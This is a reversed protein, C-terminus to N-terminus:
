SSHNRSEMTVYWANSTTRRLSSLFSRQEENRHHDDNNMSHSSLFSPSSLSSERPVNGLHESAVSDKADDVDFSAPLKVSPICSLSFLTRGVQIATPAGDASLPVEGGRVAVLTGFKSMLDQIWVHGNEYRLSAHKRSISVDTIRVQSEHGRGLVVPSSDALSIIHLGSPTLPSTSSMSSSDANEENSALSELVVLPARLQPVEVLSTVTECGPLKIYTPYLQKCLECSLQKYFFHCSSPIDTEDPLELRGNIWRRLCSLHVYRISGSCSCPAIMPDDDEAGEMLCIKCVLKKADESGGGVAPVVALSSKASSLEIEDQSVTRSPRRSVVSESGRSLARSSRRFSHSSQRKRQRYTEALDLSPWADEEGEDETGMCTEASESRCVRSAVECAGDDLIIQKVRMQYRGLKVLDGEQLCYGGPATHRVVMWSHLEDSSGVAAKRHVTKVVFDNDIGVPGRHFM